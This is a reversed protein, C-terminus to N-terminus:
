SIAYICDPRPATSYVMPSRNVNIHPIAVAGVRAEAFDNLTHRITNPSQFACDDDITVVVVREGNMGNALSLYNTDRGPTRGLKSVAPTALVFAVLSSAVLVGAVALQWPRIRRWNRAAVAIVFEYITASLPLGHGARGPTTEDNPETELMVDSPIASM